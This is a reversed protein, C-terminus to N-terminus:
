SGFFRLPQDDFGACFAHFHLINLYSAKKIEWDETLGYQLCYTRIAFIKIQLPNKEHIFARFYKNM